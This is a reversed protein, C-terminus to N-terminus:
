ITIFSQQEYESEMFYEYNQRIRKELIIRDPCHENVNIGSCYKGDPNPIHRLFPKGYLRCKSRIYTGTYIIWKDIYGTPPQRSDSENSDSIATDCPSAFM